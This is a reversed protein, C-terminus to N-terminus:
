QQFGVRYFRQPDTSAADVATGLGNADPANTSLTFWQGSTLNTSYQVTYPYNPVGAFTLKNNHVGPVNVQLALVDPTFSIRARAIYASVKRGATAFSGGAYLDSGSVALARVTNNMGSGLASWSIGDWKAIRNAGVSGVIEFSGGAYLNTGSVTLALVTSDIGAGLASWTSGNWKAICNAVTGGATTFTGGAYLNTGSVALAYVNSNIGSGLASWKSGDWKAICNAAVSGATTFSGGAYLNTGSVALAYVVGNM